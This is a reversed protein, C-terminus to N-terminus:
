TWDRAFSVALEELYGGAKEMADATDDALTDIAHVEAFMTQKASEDLTGCFGIVPKGYKHAIRAVGDPVKGQETQADIKGEGTIVLDCDRIEDELGCAEAILEVGPLLTANTFALLGAGIGGAAGAGPIESVARGAYADLVTAYHQMSTELVEMQDPTAGKQASYIMTAGNPGCLPNSVDCAVQFHADRLMPHVRSDDIRSLKGLAAGGKGIKAGGSDFFQYGL